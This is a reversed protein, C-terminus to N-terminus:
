LGKYSTLSFTNDLNIILTCSNTGQLQANRTGTERIAVSSLGEGIISVEEDGYTADVIAAGSIGDNVLASGVNVVGFCTGVSVTEPRSGVHAGGPGENGSVTELGVVM